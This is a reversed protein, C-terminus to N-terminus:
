RLDVADRYDATPPEVDGRSGDNSELEVTVPYHRGKREDLDVAAREAAHTAARNEIGVAVENADKLLDRGRLRDPDWCRPRSRGGASCNSM